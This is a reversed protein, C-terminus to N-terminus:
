TKALKFSKITALFINKYDNYHQGDTTTTIVYANDGIFFYAEIVKLYNGSSHPYSYYILFTKKGDIFIKETKEITNNSNSLEFAKEFYDRSYSHADIGKEEPLRRSVNVLISSGDSSTVKYDIHKGSATKSEFGTPKNITYGYKISKFTSTQSNALLAITLVLSTLILKM